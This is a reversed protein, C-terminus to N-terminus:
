SVKAEKARRVGRTLVLDLVEGFRYRAYGVEVETIVVQKAAADWVHDRQTRMVPQLDGKEAWKRIRDYLRPVSLETDVLAVVAQAIAKPRAVWDTAEQLITDLRDRAYTTSGCGRCTVWTLGPVVYTPLGCRRCAGAYWGPAVTETLARLTVEHQGVTTVFESCWTSGAITTLWRDFGWCRWKTKEAETMDTDDLDAFLPELPHVALYQPRDAALRQAWTALTNSAAELAESVRDVGGAGLSAPERSGPVARSGARGPRWRALNRFYVPLFELDAAVKRRCLECLALGNTTEAGCHQCIV